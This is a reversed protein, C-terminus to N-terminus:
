RMAKAITSVDNGFEDDDFDSDSGTDAMNYRIDQELYTVHIKSGTLSPKPNQEFTPAM